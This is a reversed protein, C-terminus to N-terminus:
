AFQAQSAKPMGAASLRGASTTERQSCDFSVSRRVTPSSPGSGESQNNWQATGAAFHHSSMTKVQLVISKKRDSSSMSWHHELRAVGRRGEARISWNHCIATVQYEVRRRASDRRGAGASIRLMKSPMPRCPSKQSGCDSVKPHGDISTAKDGAGQCRVGSVKRGM